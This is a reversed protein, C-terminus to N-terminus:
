IRTIILAFFWFLLVQDFLFLFLSLRSVIQSLISTRNGCCRGKGLDLITFHHTEATARTYKVPSPPHDTPRDPM